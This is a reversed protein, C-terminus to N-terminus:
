KARAKLMADAYAWRWTLYRSQEKQRFWEEREDDRKKDADTYALVEPAVEDRDLWEGLGSYQKRHEESLHEEPRLIAPRPENFEHVFWEPIEKPALAAFYDRMTAGDSGHDYIDGHQNFVVSRPYASGGTEKKM